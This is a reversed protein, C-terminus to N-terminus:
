SDQKNFGYNEPHLFTDIDLDAKNLIREVVTQEPNDLQDFQAKFKGYLNVVDPYKAAAQTQNAIQTQVQALAEPSIGGHQQSLELLQKQNQQDILAKQLEIEKQTEERAIRNYNARNQAEAIENRQSKFTDSEFADRMAKTYEKQKHEHLEVKNAELRENAYDLKAENLAQQHSTDAAVKYLDDLKQTPKGDKDHYQDVMNKTVRYENALRLKEVTVDAIRDQLGEINDSMAKAIQISRQLDRHEKERAQLILQYMEYDTNFNNEYRYQQVVYGNDDVYHGIREDFKINGAPKQTGGDKIIFVPLGNNIYQYNNQHLPQVIRKGNKNLKIYEDSFRPKLVEYRDHNLTMLANLEAEEERNRAHHEILNKEDQLYARRREQEYREKVYEEKPNKFEVSNIIKKYAEQDLQQKENDRKLDVVRKHHENNKIDQRLQQNAAKNDNIQRQLDNVQQRHQKQQQLEDRERQTEAIKQTLADIQKQTKTEQESMKKNMALANPDSTMINPQQRALAVKLMENMKTTQDATPKKQIRQIPKRKAIIRKKNLKKQLKRRGM